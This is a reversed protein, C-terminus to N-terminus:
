GPRGASWTAEAGAVDAVLNGLTLNVDDVHYGWAPGLVQSVRPRRDGDAAPASVQLWTARGASRCAARYLAPYSVYPTAPAPQLGSASAPFIPQLPAPSGSSGLDAPNVCAVELGSRATQGWSLSVGQGPVGFYADAPPQSPFTSYAIVCGTQGSTTCLPLNAFTPGATGGPPVVVNGGALIALVTRSRLAPDPDIRSRLLDILMVAGQSHGIFVVPRGDNYHQLYDSWATSLSEYARQLAPGSVAPGALISRVTSQRYMPAWVRCVRSFQAVQSRAAATEAPQVSLDSNTSRETSVTPYVYFCDFPPDAAPVAPRVTRAGGADVVTVSLDGACPDPSVGPRCLWVTGAPDARDTPGARGPRSVGPGCATVAAALALALAAKM